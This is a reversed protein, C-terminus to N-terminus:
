TLKLHAGDEKKVGYKAKMVEAWVEEECTLLWRALNALLAWNMEKASKLNVGRLEKPKILMEWKVLHVGRKGAPGGWVCRRM